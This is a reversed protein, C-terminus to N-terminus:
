KKRCLLYYWYTEGFEDALKKKDNVLNYKTVFTKMKQVVETNIDWPMNKYDKHKLAWLAALAEQIHVPISFYPIDNGLKYFKMFSTLDRELLKLAILYEYAIRNRSNKKLLFALMIDQKDNNFFFDEDIRNKRLVGYEPHKAVLDDNFLLKKTQKAWKRYFLTKELINIYKRAMKYNGDIINIEIIRKYCCASKQYDPTSEMAEFAFRHATNIMGIHYYIEGALMPTIMDRKYSPLLSERKDYQPFSFMKDGLQGTEALALNVCAMAMSSVPSQKKAKEVVKKWKYMRVMYNYAFVEEKGLDLSSAIKYSGGGFLLVALVVATWAKPKGHLFKDFLVSVAPILIILLVIINKILPMLVPYRYYNIGYIIRSLPYSTFLQSAYLIGIFFLLFFIFFALWKFVSLYSKHKIVEFLFSLVFFIVAVSGVFWFLIPLMVIGWLFRFVNQKISLYGWVACLSLLLAIPFCLMANEDCLFVTLVVSPFFSIIIVTSSTKVLTNIIKCFVQQILSIFTATIVAGLWPFLFFQTFFRAIYDAIGGPKSITEIFYNVSFRFLQYQEHFAVHYPYVLGYFLVLGVFFAFVLLFNLNQISKKM